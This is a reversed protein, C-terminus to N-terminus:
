EFVSRRLDRFDGRPGSAVVFVMPIVVLGLDSEWRTVGVSLPRMTLREARPPRHGGWVALHAKHSGSGYELGPAAGRQGHGRDLM